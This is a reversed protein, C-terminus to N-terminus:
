NRRTGGNAPMGEVPDLAAVWRGHRLVHLLALIALAYAAYRHYVFDNLEWLDAIWGTLTAFLAAPLLAASVLYGL